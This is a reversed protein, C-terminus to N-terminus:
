AGSVGAQSQLDALLQAISDKAQKPLNNIGFHSTALVNLGPHDPKGLAAVPSQTIHIRQGTRLSRVSM